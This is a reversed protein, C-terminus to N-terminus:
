WLILPGSGLSYRTKNGMDQIGSPHEPDWLILLGIGLPYTTRIGSSIGPGLIYFRELPYFSRMGKEMKIQESEEKEKQGKKM